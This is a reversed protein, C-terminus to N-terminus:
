KRFSKFVPALSRLIDDFLFIKLFRSSFFYTVLAGLFSVGSLLLLGIVRSTDFVWRDLVQMLLWAMLGSLFNVIILKSFFVLNVKINQDFHNM